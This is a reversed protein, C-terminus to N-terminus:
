TPAFTLYFRGHASDRVQHLLELGKNLFPAALEEPRFARQRFHVPRNREIGGPAIFDLTVDFVGPQGPARELSARRLWDRGDLRLWRDGQFYDKLFISDCDYADLMLRAHPHRRLAAALSTAAAELDHETLLYATVCGPAVISDFRQSFPLRRIDAEVALCPGLRDLGIRLMTPSLDAIVWEAHAAPKALSYYSGLWLVQRADALAEELPQPDIWRQSFADYYEALLRDACSM